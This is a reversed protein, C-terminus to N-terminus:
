LKYCLLSSSNRMRTEGVGYAVPDQGIWGDQGDQYTDVRIRSTAANAGVGSGGGNNGGIYASGYITVGVGDYQETGIARGVGLTQSAVTATPAVSLTVNVGSIATVYAGAPIGGGNIPSGVIPPVVWNTGVIVPNGAYINANITYYDVNRGIDAARIVTSRPDFVTLRKGAAFDAAANAGRTSLLGTSTYIPLVANNFEAWWLEYLAFTDADARNNAGSLLNGITGGIAGIWGAPVSTRKFFMEAGTPVAGGIAVPQGSANYGIISNAPGTAMKNLPITNNALKGGTILGDTIQDLSDLKDLFALARLNAMQPINNAGTGVNLFAATGLGLGERLKTIDATNGLFVGWNRFIEVWRDGTEEYYFVITKSTHDLVATTGNTLKFKGGGAINDRITIPRTANLCRVIILKKGINTNSIRDLDDPGDSAESDIILHTSGAPTVAGGSINLLEPLAGAVLQATYDYLAGIANQFAAETTVGSTLDIKPLLEAM